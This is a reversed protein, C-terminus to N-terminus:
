RWMFRWRGWLEFITDRSPYRLCIFAWTISRSLLFYTKNFLKLTFLPLKVSTFDFIYKLSKIICLLIFPCYVAQFSFGLRSIEPWNQNLSNRNRLTQLIASGLSFVRLKSLPIEHSQPYFTSFPLLIYIM